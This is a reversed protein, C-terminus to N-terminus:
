GKLGEGLKELAAMAAELHVRDEPDLGNVAKTVAALRRRRWGSM